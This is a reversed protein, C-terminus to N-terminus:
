SFSFSALLIGQRHNLAFDQFLQLVQLLLLVVIFVDTLIYLEEQLFETLTDLIEPTSDEKIRM